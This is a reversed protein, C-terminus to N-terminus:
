YGDSIRRAAASKSNEKTPVLRKLLAMLHKSKEKKPKGPVGASNPGLLEAM